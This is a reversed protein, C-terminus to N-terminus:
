DIMHEVEMPVEGKFFAPRLYRQYVMVCIGLLLIAVSLCFVLGVGGIESGSGHHPDMSDYTTQIFFVLLMIGGLFPFLFKNVFSKFGSSFAVKRFYWVCAFATVGYYLCVMLSLASITDWLVSASIFRMLVYFLTAILCSAITAYSPSQYKPSISAFKPGLAKYYGM